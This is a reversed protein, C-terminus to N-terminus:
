PLWRRELRELLGTRRCEAVAQNVADRLGVGGPAFAIGLREHTPVDQAVALDPREKVLWTAVPALTMFGGIRGQDLDDLIELVDGYPYYRLDGLMGDALLQRAVLDSADGTRIGVVQGSLDDVSGVHPTRATNVVLGQGSELYPESFLAVKERDATITTGSIVADYDGTRLGDFIGNFDAGDYKVLNWRLGVQGCVARMLEADFGTDAGERELEFPPNPFASGIRMTGAEITKLGAM